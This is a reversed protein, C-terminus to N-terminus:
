RRVLLGAGALRFDNGDWLPRMLGARAHKGDPLLMHGLEHAIATALVKDVRGHAEDATIEVIRVGFPEGEAETEVDEIDPDAGM